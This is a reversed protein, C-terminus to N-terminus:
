AKKKRPRPALASRPPRVNRKTRGKPQVARHNTMDHLQLLGGNESHYVTFDFTPTHKRNWRCLADLLRTSIPLVSIDEGGGTQMQVFPIHGDGFPYEGIQHQAGIIADFAMPDSTEIYRQVKRAMANRRTKATQNDFSM